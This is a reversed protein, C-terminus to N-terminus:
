GNLKRIKKVPVGTYLYGGELDKNVLSAAGVICRSGITVGGLITINAGLYCDDMINVPASSSGQKALAGTGDFIHENTYILCGTGIEVDNGIIVNNFNYLKSFEGIKSRKGITLNSSNAVFVSARVISKEGINAGSQRLLQTRIKEFSSSVFGIKIFRLSFSKFLRYNIDFFLQKIRYFLNRVGL